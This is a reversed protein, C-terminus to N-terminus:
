AQGTADTSRYGLVTHELTPHVPRRALVTVPDGRRVTGLTRAIANQGFFVGKLQESTGRRMAILTTLPEKSVCTGTSQDITPVRCRACPLVLDIVCEGIQLTQIADEEFAAAGNLVINPRFRDMGVAEDGLRANLADLSAQNTVLLPMSDAFSVHDGPLSYDPNTHRIFREDMKVLRCPLDLYDSFWQAAADGADLSQCPEDWVSVTQQVECLASGPVQLADGEPGYCHIGGDDTPQARILALTECGQDRQTIFVGRRDPEDHVLLWRRDHQPGRATLMLEDVSLASAAKLPYVFCADVLITM